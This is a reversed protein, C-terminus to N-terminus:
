RMSVEPNRAIIQEAPDSPTVPTEPDMQIRKRSEPGPFVGEKVKDLIVGTIMLPQGELQGREIDKQYFVRDDTTLKNVAVMEELVARDPLSVFWPYATNLDPRYVPDSGDYRAVAFLEGLGAEGFEPQRHEKAFGENDLGMEQRKQVSIPLARKLAFKTWFEGALTWPMTPFIELLDDVTKIKKAFVKAKNISSDRKKSKSALIRLMAQRIHKNAATKSM